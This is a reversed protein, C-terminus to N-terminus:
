LNPIPNPIAIRSFILVLAQTVLEGIEGIAPVGCRSPGLQPRSSSYLYIPM